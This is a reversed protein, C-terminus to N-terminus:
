KIVLTLYRQSDEKKIWMGKYEPALISKLTELKFDSISQTKTSSFITGAIGSISPIFSDYVDVLLIAEDDCTGKVYVLHGANLISKLSNKWIKVNQIFGEENLTQYIKKNNSSLDLM